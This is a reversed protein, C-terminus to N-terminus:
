RFRREKTAEAIDFRARSAQSRVFGDNVEFTRTKGPEIIDMIKGSNDDVHTGSAADYSTEYEIDKYAAIPSTNKITVTWLAVTDFGGKQWSSRVLIL